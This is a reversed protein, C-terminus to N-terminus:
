MILFLYFFIGAGNRRLSHLLVTGAGPGARQAGRSGPNGGMGGEGLEM